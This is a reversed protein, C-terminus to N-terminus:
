RYIKDKDVPDGFTDEVWQKMEQMDNDMEEHEYIDLEDCMSCVHHFNDILEQLKDISIVVTGM